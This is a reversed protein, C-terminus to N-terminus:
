KKLNLITKAICTLYEKDTKKLKSPIDFGTSGDFEKFCYYYKTKKFEKPSHKIMEVLEKSLRDYKNDTICTDNLEYYQISSVIIRRELWEIKTKDDWYISPPKNFM